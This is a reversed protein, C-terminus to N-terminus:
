IIKVCTFCYQQKINLSFCYFVLRKSWYLDINPKVEDILLCWCSCHPQLDLLPVFINKLQQLQLVIWSLFRFSFYWNIECQLHAWLLPKMAQSHTESLLSLGGPRVCFSPSQKLFFLRCGKVRRANMLRPFCSLRSSSILAASARPLGDKALRTHARLNHTQQVKLSCCLGAYM